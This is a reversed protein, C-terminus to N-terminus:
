YDSSPPPHPHHSYSSPTTVGRRAEEEIRQTVGRLFKVIEVQSSRPAQMANVGNFSDLPRRQYLCFFWRDDVIAEVIIYVIRSLQFTPWGFFLASYSGATHRPHHLCLESRLLSAKPSSCEFARASFGRFQQQQQEDHVQGSFKLKILKAMDFAVYASNALERPAWSHTWCSYLSEYRTHDVNSM